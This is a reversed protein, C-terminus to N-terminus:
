QEASMIRWIDEERHTIEFTDVIDDGDDDFLGDIDDNDEAVMM